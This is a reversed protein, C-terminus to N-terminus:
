KLRIVLGVVCAGITPLALFALIWGYPETIYMALMCLSCLGLLGPPALLLCALAIIAKKSM